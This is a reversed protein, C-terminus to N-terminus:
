QIHEYLFTIIFWGDHEVNQITADNNFLKQVLTTMIENRSKISIIYPHGNEDLIYDIIFDDNVNPLTSSENYFESGKIMPPTTNVKAFSAVPILVLIFIAIIFQKMTTRKAFSFDFM